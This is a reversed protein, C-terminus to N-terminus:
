KKTFYTNEDTTCGMIDPKFRYVGNTKYGTYTDEYKQNNNIDIKLIVKDNERIIKYSVTKPPFMGEGCTSTVIVLTNDNDIKFYEDEYDSNYYTGYIDENKNKYTTNNEKNSGESNSIVKERSDKIFLLYGIAVALLTIIVALVIVGLNSGRSKFNENEM